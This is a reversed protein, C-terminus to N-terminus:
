NTSPIHLSIDTTLVPLSRTRVRKMQWKEKIEIALVMYLHVHFTNRNNTNVTYILIRQMDVKRIATVITTIMITNTAMTMM